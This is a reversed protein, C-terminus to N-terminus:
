RSEGICPSESAMRTSIQATNALRWTPDQHRYELAFCDSSGHVPPYLDQASFIQALYGLLELLRAMPVGIGSSGKELAAPAWAPLQGEHGELKLAYCELSGLGEEVPQAENSYWKNRNHADLVCLSDSLKRSHNLQVGFTPSLCSEM